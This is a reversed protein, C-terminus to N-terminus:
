LRLLRHRTRDRFAFKFAFLPCPRAPSPSAPFYVWLFFVVADFFVLIRRLHVFMSSFGSPLRVAVGAMHNAGAMAAWVLTFPIMSFCLFALLCLLMASCLQPVCDMSTAVDTLGSSCDGGISLSVQQDFVHECVLSLHYSFPSLCSAM